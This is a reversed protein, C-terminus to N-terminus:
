NEKLREAHEIVFMDVPAKQPELKLGLREFIEFITPQDALLKGDEGKADPAPPPGAQMSLWGDTQINFLGQLGTKDVVPRDTYNSVNSVLDSIDVAQGHLGRGRGGSFNHCSDPNGFEAPRANCDKEELKSKELKPGNKGVVAAYVPQEKTERRVVIQFREALLTQLMQRILDARVRSSAGAPIAGAAPTAEIDFADSRIWDPGGSLRSLQFPLDYAWAVIYILPVDTVVLRGGPLVQLGRGRVASSNPKISAVEFGLPEAQLFPASLVCALAALLIKSAIM